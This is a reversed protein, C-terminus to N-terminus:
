VSVDFMSRDGDPKKGGKKQKATKQDKKEYFNSGKGDKDVNQQESKHTNAVQHNNHEVEKVFKEAFQQQNVQHRNTENHAATTEQTKHVMLQLDIPRISM